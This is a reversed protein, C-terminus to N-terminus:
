AEMPNDVETFMESDLTIQHPTYQFLVKRLPTAPIFGTTTPIMEFSKGCHNCYGMANYSESKSDIVQGDRDTLFLTHTIESVVFQKHGCNPCAGVPVVTCMEKLPIDNTM